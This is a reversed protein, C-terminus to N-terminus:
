RTQQCYDAKLASKVEEMRGRKLRLNILKTLTTHLVAGGGGFGRSLIFPQCIVIEKIVIYCKGRIRKTLLLFIYQFYILPTGIMWWLLALLLFEDVM